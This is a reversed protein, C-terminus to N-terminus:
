VGPYAVDPKIVQINQDYSVSITWQTRDDFAYNFWIHFIAGEIARGDGEVSTWDFSVVEPLEVMMNNIIQKFVADLSVNGLNLNATTDDTSWVISKLDGNINNQIEEIQSHFTGISGDSYAITGIFTGVVGNLEAM